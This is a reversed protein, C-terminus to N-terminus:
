SLDGLTLARTLWDVTVEIPETLAEEGILAGATFWWPELRNLTHIELDLGADRWRGIIGSLARGLRPDGGLRIMLVARPSTGVEAELDHGQGSLYLSHTVTYGLVHFAGDHELQALMSEGSKAGPESQKLAQIRSARFIDGLYQSPNLVPDWLVLPAVPHARAIAAATLGGIRTGFFALREVGSVQILRETAAQADDRMTSLTTDSIRGDSNGQGRYHFRQVAIGLAALRRGILVERRYNRTFEAYLPSCIVVGARAGALPLHEFGFVRMGEPGFFEAVERSGSDHDVRTAQHIPM